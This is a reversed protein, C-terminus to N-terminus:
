SFVPGAGATASLNEVRLIGSLLACDELELLQIIVQHFDEVLPSSPATPQCNHVVGSNGLATRGPLCLGGAKKVGAAFIEHLAAQALFNAWVYAQKLKNGVHMSKSVRVTPITALQHCTHMGGSSRMDLIHQHHAPPLADATEDRISGFAWILRLGARGLPQVHIAAHARAFGHEHVQEHMGCGRLEFYTGNAM